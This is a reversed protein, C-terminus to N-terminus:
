TKHKHTQEIHNPKATLIVGIARYNIINLTKKIVIKKKLKTDELPVM